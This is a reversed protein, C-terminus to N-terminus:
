PLACGVMWDFGYKDKCMGFYEGWFTKDFPMMVLGGVALKEFTERAKGEEDLTLSLSVTNGKVVAQDPQMDSAMFLGSGFNLTSHMIKDKYDEPVDMPSGEFTMFELEGGLISQYFEMAEKCNGEFALYANLTVSTTM